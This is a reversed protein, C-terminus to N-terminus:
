EKRTVKVSLVIEGNVKYKERDFDSPLGMDLVVRSMALAVGSGGGDPNDISMRVRGTYNSKDFTMFSLGSKLKVDRVVEDKVKVM